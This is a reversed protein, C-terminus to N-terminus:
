RRKKYEENNSDQNTNNFRLIVLNFMEINKYM